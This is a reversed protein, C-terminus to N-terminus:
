PRSPEPVRRALYIIAGCLLAVAGALLNSMEASSLFALSLALALVPITWGGPLLVASPRNGFRRRLVPIAAATGIYTVLRAIISLLALQVFSGTLAALLALAALTVIAAAPTRYTPHVTALLRPGYGDRALAYLYRPGMLITNSINGGISVVAGVTMVLAGIPGAFTAAAEAVPSASQAILPLTGLAVLQVGTYLVTVILIMTM